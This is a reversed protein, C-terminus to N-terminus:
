FRFSAITSSNVPYHAAVDKIADYSDARRLEQLGDPYLRGCTPFLKAKADQTLNADLANISIM